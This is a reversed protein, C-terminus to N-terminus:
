MVVLFSVIQLQFRVTLKNKLTLPKNSLIIEIDLLLEDGM